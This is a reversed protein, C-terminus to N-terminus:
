GPVGGADEQDGPGADPLEEVAEGGEEGEGDVRGDGRGGLM